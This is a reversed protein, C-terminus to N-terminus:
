HRSKIQLLAAAVGTDKEQTIRNVSEGVRLENAQSNGITITAKGPVNPHSGVKVGGTDDSSNMPRGNIWYIRRGGSAMLTGNLSLTEGQLTQNKLINLQRQHELAKRQASTFFLRGMIPSNSSAQVAAPQGQCLSTVSLLVLWLLRKM